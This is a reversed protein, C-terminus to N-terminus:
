LSEEVFRVLSGDFFSSHVAIGHRNEVFVAHDAENILTLTAGEVEFQFSNRLEGTRDQWAGVREDHAVAKQGAKSLARTAMPEPALEAELEQTFADVSM